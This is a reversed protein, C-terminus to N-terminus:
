KDLGTKELVENWEHVFRDIAFDQIITRRANDGLRKALQWDDLLIHGKELLGEKNRAVLGNYGDKIPSTPHALTVVPMGSAMAELTALNYGDEPERTVNVYARCSGYFKKLEQWSSAPKAEPIHPNKGVVKLPLAKSLKLIADFDFHERHLDNGVILLSGIAGNNPMMEDIPIGPHIVSGPLNWSSRVSESIFVFEVGNLRAFLTLLGEGYAAKM